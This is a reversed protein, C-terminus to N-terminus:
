VLQAGPISEIRQREGPDCTELDRMVIAEKILLRQYLESHEKDSVPNVGPLRKYAFVYLPENSFPGNDVKRLLWAERVWETRAVQARFHELAHRPLGSAVLETQADVLLWAARQRELEASWAARLARWAEAEQREARDDLFEIIDDCIQQSLRRDLKQARRLAEIGARDGDDLLMTGRLLWGQADQPWRETHVAALTLAEARQEQSWARLVRLLSREMDQSAADLAADLQELREHMARRHEKWIHWITDRWASEILTTAAEPDGLWAEAASRAPPKLSLASSDEIGLAALRERLCPHVDVLGTQERLASRLHRGLAAEDVSQLRAHMAKFVEQPAHKDHAALLPRWFSAALWLDIAHIRALASAAAKPSTAKAAAKDAEYEQTRAMVFSMAAFRPLIWDWFPKLMSSSLEDVGERARLELWIRRQQYLWGSNKTHGGTMHALEHALVSRAEQESLAWLLPLGLVLHHRPWGLLGLRPIYAIGANFDGTLEVTDVRGGLEDLAKFLGPANTRTLLRERPLEHKPPCFAKRISQMTYLVPLALTLAGYISYRWLFASIGLFVCLVFVIGALYLLGWLALQRVRTPYGQPDAAAEQEYRAVLAGFADINM